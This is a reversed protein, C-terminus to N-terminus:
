RASILRNNLYSQIWKIISYHTNLKHLKNFLLKHNAVASIINISRYNEINNRDGKGKYVPVIFSKKWRTPYYGESVLRNFLQQLPYVLSGACEKIFKGPIGDPSIATNCNIKKISEILDNESLQFNDSTIDHISLDNFINDFNNDLKISFAYIDSFFEPFLNAIEKANSGQKNNYYM